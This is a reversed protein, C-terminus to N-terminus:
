MYVCFTKFLYIFIILDYQISSIETQIHSNLKNEFIHKCQVQSIRVCMASYGKLANTACLDFVVNICLMEFTNHVADRPACNLADM